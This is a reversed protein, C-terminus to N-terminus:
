HGSFVPPNFCFSGRKAIGLETAKNVTLRLERTPFSSAKENGLDNTVPLFFLLAYTYNNFQRTPM